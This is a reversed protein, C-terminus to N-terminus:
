PVEITKLRSPRKNMKLFTVFEKISMIRTPDIEPDFKTIFPLYKNCELSIKICSPYDGEDLAILVYNSFKIGNGFQFFYTSSNITSTKPRIGITYVNVHPDYNFDIVKSELVTKLLSDHSDMPDVSSDIEYLKFFNFLISICKALHLHDEIKMQFQQEIPNICIYRKM